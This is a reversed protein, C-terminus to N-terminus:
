WIQGVFSSGTDQGSIQGGRDSRRGVIRGGGPQGVAGIRDIAHPGVRRPDAVAPRRGEVLEDRVGVDLDVPVRGVDAV